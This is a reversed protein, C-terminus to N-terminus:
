PAAGTDHHCILGNVWWCPALSFTVLQLVVLARSNSFSQFPELTAYTTSPAVLETELKYLLPLRHKTAYITCGINNRTQGTHM